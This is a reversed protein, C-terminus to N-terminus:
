DVSRKLVITWQEDCKQSKGRPKKITVIRSRSNQRKSKQMGSEELTLQLVVERPVRPRRTEVAKTLRRTYIRYLTAALVADEVEESLICIWEHTM